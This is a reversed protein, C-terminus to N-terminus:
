IAANVYRLCQCERHKHRSVTKKTLKPVLFSDKTEYAFEQKIDIVATKQVLM